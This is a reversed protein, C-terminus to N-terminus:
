YVYTDLTESTKLNMVNQLVLIQEPGTNLIGAVALILMIVITGLISPITIHCIVQFRNAGDVKAAESMEQDVGAIAALYIISSFGIGKVLGSIVVIWWFYEPTGIFNIGKDIVGLAKLLGNIMGVSPSLFNLVIGGYVAWSFFYPLYSSTQVFRKFRENQLENLLLALLIPAPFGIALGLLNIGFTNRMVNFFSSDTFINRFYKLGVWPSGEIGKVINFDQFAIVVFLMPIYAFVLLFLIGLMVMSQLQLQDKRNLDRAIHKRTM